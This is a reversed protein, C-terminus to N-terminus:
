PKHAFSAGCSCSSQANPNTFRFGGGMLDEAYDVRLQELYGLSKSDIVLTIQDLPYVHDSEQPTKCLELVYCLGSCGGEIVGLRFYSDPQQRSTQIRKIEKIAAPTLEIM